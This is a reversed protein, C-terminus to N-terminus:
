VSLLKAEVLPKYWLAYGIANPHTGDSSDTYATRMATINTNLQCENYLDVYPVSWKKCIAIARDGFSIQLAADRSNMNHVRVFVIKTGIWAARIRSIANELAGSFTATDYADTYGAEIDGLTVGQSIDNALGEILVYDPTISAGIATDLYKSLNNIQYIATTIATGATWDVGETIETYTEGSKTFYRKGTIYARDYTLQYVTALDAVTMGGASYQTFAMNNAKAILYGLGQGSTGDGRMISDGFDILYKGRIPNTTRYYDNYPIYAYNEISRQRITAYGSNGKFQSAYVVMLQTGNSVYWSIVVYTATAPVVFDQQGSATTIGSVVANSANFFVVFVPDNAQIVGLKYINIKIKRLSTVPVQGTHMYTLDAYEIGNTWVYKGTTFQSENCLNISTRVSAQIGVANAVIDAGAEQLACEVTTADYYGGADVIQLNAHAGADTNHASIAGSVDQDGTNTGSTNSIVTKEAATVHYYEGVAGGQINSLDNHNFDDATVTAVADDVYKKDALENDLDIARDAALKPIGGVFTQPTAQNVNLYVQNATSPPFTEGSMGVSQAVPFNYYSTTIQRTVVADVVTDGVVNIQWVGASLNVHDSELVEDDTLVVEYSSAGNTFIASKTLGDWEDNFVFSFTLYNVTDSVAPYVEIPTLTQGSVSFLNTM